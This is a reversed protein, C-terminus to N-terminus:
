YFEGYNPLYTKPVVGLITGEACVIACSYLKGSMRVPECGMETYTTELWQQAAAPARVHSADCRAHLELIQGRGFNVTVDGKM